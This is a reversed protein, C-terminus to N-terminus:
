ANAVRRLIYTIDIGAPCVDICRGCGTCGIQGDYKDPNYSFKHYIRQRLREAQTARSNYAAMQTFGGLQCSDWYRVRQTKHGAKIDEVNFCHCTPCVWNCGGCLICKGAEQAWVPNASAAAIKAKIKELEISTKFTKKSEEELLKAKGRDKSTANTFLNAGKEILKEGAKSGIEVLFVTGLDTFLLDFAEKAFPGTGLSNCFCSEEAKNCNLGLLITNARRAQYYPDIYDSLYVTDLIKIGYLDCPRIGWIVRRKENLYAEIEISGNEKFTFLRERQPFLYEKPSLRTKGVFDSALKSPDLDGFLIDEGEHLPAIVEHSSTLEALFQNLKTKALIKM